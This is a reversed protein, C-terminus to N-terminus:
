FTPIYETGSARLAELNNLQDRLMDAQVLSAGTGGQAVDESGDWEMDSIRDKLAQIASHVPVLREDDKPAVWSM